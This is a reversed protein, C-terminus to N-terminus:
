AEFPLVAEAGTVHFVSQVAAPAKRLRLRPGLRADADLIAQVGRLDVFDVQRLDITITTAALGEARRIAQELLATSSRDIEGDLELTSHGRDCTFRLQLVGKRM